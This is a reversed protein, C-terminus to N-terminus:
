KDPSHRVWCNHNPCWWYTKKNVQKEQKGDKPPVLMWEQMKNKDKPKDVKKGDSKPKDKKGVESKKKTLKKLQAELAIIKQQDESPAKWTGKQKLVAYQDRALQMLQEPTYNTGEDYNSEKLAMYEVFQRDSAAAYGKFLNALLDETTQGRATLLDVLDRIYDNFKEIDSDIKVMCSDLSSLSERIFKTTANLDLHSERIVVKLLCAGSRISNITYQEEHLLIKQKATETLSQMICQYIAYSNQATCSEAAIYTNAHAAVQDLTIRGYETLLNFTAGAPAAGVVAPVEFVQDWGSASARDGLSSLFVKLKVSSCDFKVPLAETAAKYMKAGEPTAYNIPHDTVLAPALAFRINAPAAAMM